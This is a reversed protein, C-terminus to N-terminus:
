KPLRIYMVLGILAFVINPIWASLSPDITGVNAINRGIIVFIVYVFAMLFGLAIQLGVGGRSKRASVIVGIITLIIIAFPYTFREYKEIKYPEVGEAGREELLQIHANLEDITLQEYLMHQTEFDKPTLNLTTDLHDGRSQTEQLGNFTHRRYMELRWKQNDPLWLIRNCSIKELLKNSDIIELTVQYGANITNNYSEIYVYSKPGVRMHVNRKDYYFQGRVYVNEFGHRIKSARPIVWGYMYFIIIAIFTSGILYPRLIRAFSVGASLIAIIETRGALRATVFVTAIFVLIPSILNVLYPIFNFYYTFIIEKFPAKKTLFDENKETYDIVCIVTVAIFVVFLFASLYKRLIYKDLIKFKLM